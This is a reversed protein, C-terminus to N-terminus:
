DFSLPLGERLIGKVQSTYSERDGEHYAGEHMVLPAHLRFKGRAGKRARVIVRGAVGGARSVLPKVEISGVRADLGMLLEPLKEALHIVSLYGKPKLRRIGIELWASLPTEERFAVERGADKASTGHGASLYPPNAIVHNFSEQTLTPPLRTLDAEVVRMAIGNAEANRGALAAYSHQLEVGTLQLGSVRAGLCLSAVGAGCGLELVTEGTRAPVAAALLVPDTAARYGTRPQWIRLAGGLFGDLTLEKDAFDM